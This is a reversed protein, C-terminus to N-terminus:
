SEIWNWSTHGFQIGISIFLRIMVLVSLSPVNQYPLFHYETRLTFLSTPSNKGAPWFPQKPYTSEWTISASNSCIGLGAVSGPPSKFSPVPRSTAASELISFPGGCKIQTAGHGQGNTVQRLGLIPIGNTEIKKFPPWKNRKTDPLFLVAMGIRRKVRFKRLHFCKHLHHRGHRQHGLEIKPEGRRPTLIAQAHYQFRRTPRHLHRNHRHASLKAAPPASPNLLLVECGPRHPPCRHHLHIPRLDHQDPSKARRIPWVSSLKAVDYLYSLYPHLPKVCRIPASTPSRSPFEPSPVEPSPM